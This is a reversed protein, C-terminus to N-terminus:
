MSATESSIRAMSMLHPHFRQIHIHVQPSFIIAVGLCSQMSFPREHRQYQNLKDLTIHKIGVNVSEKVPLMVVNCNEEIVAIDFLLPPPGRSQKTKVM